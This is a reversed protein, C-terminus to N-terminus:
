GLVLGYVYFTLRFFLLSFFLVFTSLFFVFRFDALHSGFRFGYAYFAYRMAM